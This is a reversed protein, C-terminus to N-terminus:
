GVAALSRGLVLTTGLLVLAARDGVLERKGWGQPFVLPDLLTAKWSYKNWSSSYQHNEESHLERGVPKLQEARHLESGRTAALSSTFILGQGSTEM